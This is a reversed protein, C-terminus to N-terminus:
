SLVAIRWHSTLECWRRLFVQWKLRKLLSISALLPKKKLRVLLHHQYKEEYYREGADPYATAVRM